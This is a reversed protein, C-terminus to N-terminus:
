ALRKSVLVPTAPLFMAAGDLTIEGNVARLTKTELLSAAIIRPSEFTRLHYTLALQDKWYAQSAFFCGALSEGDDVALATNVTNLVLQAEKTAADGAMIAPDVLGPTLMPLPNQDMMRRLDGRLPFEDQSPSADSNNAM